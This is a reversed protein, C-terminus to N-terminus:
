FHLTVLLQTIYIEHRQGSASSQTGLFLWFGGTADTTLDLTQRLQTTGNLAFSGTTPCGTLGNRIDGLTTFDGAATGTGKDINMRLVGQADAIALPETSSAGAKLVVAPGVGSTCGSHYNTVFGVQLSVKYTFNSRLGDYFKKHFVFLDGSVNTGSQYLAPSNTSLEAPLTREGGDATVEALRAAPVDAVGLAWTTAFGPQTFNFNLTNTNADEVNLCAGSLLLLGVLPAVSSRSV